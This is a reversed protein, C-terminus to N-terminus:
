KFDLQCALVGWPHWGDGEGPPGWVAVSIILSTCVYLSVQRIGKNLRLVSQKQQFSLFPFECGFVCQFIAAPYPTTLTVASPPGFEAALWRISLVIPRSAFPLSGPQAKCVGAQSGSHAILSLSILNQFGSTDKFLLASGIAVGLPAQPVPEYLAQLTFIHSM